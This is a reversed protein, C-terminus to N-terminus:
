RNYPFENIWHFGRSLLTFDKTDALHMVAHIQEGNMTGILDLTRPDVRRYHFSARFQPDDRKTLLLTHHAEDFKSGFRRRQDSMLQISMGRPNDFIMRRWRTTDSFLPPHAVGNVTMEDVNWIGYLPSKPAGAGYQARVDLEQKFTWGVFALVIVTRLAIKWWAMREPAATFFAVLRKLDPAILFLAHFLLICSYLKVPVDYSFNLVAVHTMVAATILAGLLTTRRMTLLLGGMLEGLGTFVTYAASTGMFTWLMGMPSADGFPQVLRELTPAPFQDVLVKSLGYSIMAAALAFRVYIRLYCHLRPYALTRRDLISWVLTVLAAAAVIILLQVYNWTRDGSGTAAVATTVGFVTRAVLSVLFDWSKIFAGGIPPIIDLPFPLNYLLFFAFCFRFAMRTAPNWRPSDAWSSASM